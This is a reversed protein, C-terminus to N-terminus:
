KSSNEKKLKELDKKMMKLQKKIHVYDENFLEKSCMLPRNEDFDWTHFADGQCIKWEECKKCKENCTRDMKRFPKFKKQWVEVFNDKRINGQILEPRRKVDPCVFIDGNSLVSAIYFGTYCLYPLDRVFRDKLPGLYHGCGYTIEMKDELRKETIFDIMRKLIKSDPLIDDNDRARGIPDVEIIRWHKIGTDVLLQYLDELEEINKKNVCTTVQVVKISPTKLMLKLGNLIKEYSNPVKRFSEHTEKLGDISVSVSYMHTKAMKKVINKDILMGNTTMGWHYGLKDAHEMIEFLDKRVLPEGGTINIMIDEPNRIGSAAVDDLVKIIEEKTIEDKQIIDGCSSGCHECRANCRLTVEFFLVRLPHEKYEKKKWNYFAEKFEKYEDENM